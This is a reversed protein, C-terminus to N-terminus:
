LLIGLSLVTTSAGYVGGGRNFWHRHDIVRSCDGGKANTDEQYKTDEYTEEYINNLSSHRLFPNKFSQRVVQSNRATRTLYAYWKIATAM